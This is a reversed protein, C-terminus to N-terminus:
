NEGQTEDRQCIVNLYNCRFPSFLQVAPLGSAHIIHVFCALMRQGVLTSGVAISLRFFEYNSRRVFFYPNKKHVSLFGM